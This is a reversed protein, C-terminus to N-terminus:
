KRIEVCSARVWVCVGCSPGGSSPRAATSACASTTPRVCPCARAACLWSSATRRRPRSWENKTTQPLDVRAQKTAPLLASAVDVGRKKAAMLDHDLLPLALRCAEEFKENLDPVEKLREKLYEDLWEGFNESGSM